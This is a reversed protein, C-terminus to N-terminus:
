DLDALACLLDPVAEIVPVGDPLAGGARGGQAGAYREHKKGLEVTLHIGAGADGGVACTAFLRLGPGAPRSTLAALEELGLGHGFKSGWGPLQGEGGGVQSPRGEESIGFRGCRKVDDRSM